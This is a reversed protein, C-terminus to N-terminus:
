GAAIMALALAVLLRDLPVVRLIGYEEAETLHQDRTKCSFCLEYFWFCLLRLGASIVLLKALDFIHGIGLLIRSM